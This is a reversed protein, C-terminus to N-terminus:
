LYKKPMAKRRKYWVFGVVLLVQGGIIVMILKAHGPPAHAVVHDALSEHKDSVHYKIANESDRLRAALDNRMTRMEQEMERMRNDISELRDLKGLM